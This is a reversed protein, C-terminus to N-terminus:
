FKIVVSNLHVRSADILCTAQARKSRLQARGARERERKRQREGEREEGRKGDRKNANHNRM